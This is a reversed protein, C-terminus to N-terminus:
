AISGVHSTTTVMWYADLKEPPTGRPGAENQQLAFAIQEDTFKSKKM